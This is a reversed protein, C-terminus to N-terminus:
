RNIKKRTSCAIPPPANMGDAAPITLSTKPALFRPVAIPSKVLTKGMPPMMPGFRPPQTMSANLQRAINETLTGIPMTSSIAPIKRSGDPPRTAVLRLM